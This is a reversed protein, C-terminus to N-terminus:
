SIIQQVKVRFDQVLVLIGISVYLWCSKSERVNPEPSVISGGRGGLLAMYFRLSTLMGPRAWRGCDPKRRHGREVLVHRGHTSPQEVIQLM